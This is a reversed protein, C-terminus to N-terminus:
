DLGAVRVKAVPQTLKNFAGSSADAQDKFTGNPFTELEDLYAKNWEGRVLRVNGAQWQAAFPDARTVKDGTVRETHVVFGALDKVTVEASEKGGSGPEQEQWVHVPTGDTEAVSRMFKRRGDSALQRRASDEVYTVGEAYAMRVGATYKGAGDTGAKDWYRVRRAIAPAADVITALHRPFMIGERPRPRQQYLAAFSYEGLVIRIDNLAAEDFRDRCLADGVARGLADNEEALAPLSVVTWNPGDASALIRGALDDDHWRTMILIMAAGPELRTYLDDTYWAWVRERYTLSDAEERSKVPDDIIILDGGQGTIGGGVGIARVGGGDRTEWDQVATREDSLALRSQAIRRAKRSFKDALTQNYAGLIVRLRSNLELRQVPYRVTATETKGHRPPMQLILRTIEGSTVRDLQEQVYALHPWRWNWTPTVAENWEVLPIRAAPEPPRVNRVRLPECARVIANRWPAHAPEGRLLEGLSSGSRL